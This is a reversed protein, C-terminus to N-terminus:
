NKKKKDKKNPESPPAASTGTIVQPISTYKIRM